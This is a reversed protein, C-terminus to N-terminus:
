FDISFKNIVAWSDIAPTVARLESGTSPYQQECGLECFYTNDGIHYLIKWDLFDPRKSLHTRLPPPYGRGLFVDGFKEWLRFLLQTWIVWVVLLLQGPLAVKMSLDLVLNPFCDSGFLSSNKLSILNSRTYYHCKHHCVSVLALSFM